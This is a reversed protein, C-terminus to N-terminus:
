VEIVTEFVTSKVNEYFTIDPIVQLVGLVAGNDPPTNYRIFILLANM